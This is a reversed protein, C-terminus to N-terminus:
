PVFGRAVIPIGLRKFEREIKAKRQTSSLCNPTPAPLHHFEAIIGSIRPLLWDYKVELLAELMVYEAGEADIDLFVADNPGTLLEILRGLGIVAPYIEFGLDLNTTKHDATVDAEFSDGKDDDKSFFRALGASGGVGFPCLVIDFKASMVKCKELLKAFHRPGPEFVWIRHDLFRTGQTEIWDFTQGVNGGIDFFHKM